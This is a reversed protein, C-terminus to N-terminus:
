FHYLLGAGAYFPVEPLFNGGLSFYRIMPIHVGIDQYLNSEVLFTNKATDYSFSKEFLLFSLILLVFYFLFHPGKYQKRGVELNKKFTLGLVILFGASYIILASFLNHVLFLLIFVTTVCVISGIIFCASIKKTLLFGIYLVSLLFLISLIM